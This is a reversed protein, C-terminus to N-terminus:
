TLKGTPVDIEGFFFTTCQDVSFFPAAHSFIETLRSVQWIRSAPKSWGVQPLYIYLYWQFSGMMGMPDMYAIYALM